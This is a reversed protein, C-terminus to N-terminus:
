EYILEVNDIYLNSGEHHTYGDVEGGLDIYNKLNNSEESENDSCYASSSFVIHMHTAKKEKDLYNIPFKLESWDEVSKNSEIEGYGIQTTIGNDKNLIVIWAKFSDNKCSDYKYHAKM